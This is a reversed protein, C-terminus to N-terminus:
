RKGCGGTRGKGRFGVMLGVTNKDWAEAIERLRQKELLMPNKEEVGRIEEEFERM